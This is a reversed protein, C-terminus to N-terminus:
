TRGEGYEIHNEEFYIKLRRKGNQICSKVKNLDYGTESSVQRYSKEQMYFMEICTKQDEELLSMAKELHTIEPEAVCMSFSEYKEIFFEPDEEFVLEESLHRRRRIFTHMYNRSVSYLWHRFSLIDHQQAKELVIMFIETVADKAEEERRLFKYCFGFLPITYRKYLIGMANSDGEKQYRSLLESDSLSNTYM